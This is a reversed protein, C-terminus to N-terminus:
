TNNSNLTSIETPTELDNFSNFVDPNISSIKKSKNKKKEGIKVSEILNSNSSKVNVSSKTHKSELDKKLFEISKNLVLDNFDNALINKYSNNNKISNFITKSIKKVIKKYKDYDDLNYNHNKVFYVNINDYINNINEKSIFSNDM